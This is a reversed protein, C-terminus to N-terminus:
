QIKKNSIVNYLREMQERRLFKVVHEPVERQVRRLFAWTYGSLRFCSGFLYPRERVRFVCKAIEFLPHYGHSYEMVGQRFRASLIGGKATGTARHHFVEANPFSRVEWGHMRAMVEGLADVGGIELPTYGGIDEYCQRRFMQVAGAVSALNTFQKRLGKRYPELIIGGGIGLKPNKEFEELIRQCYNPGFSVDADLNGIFDYRVNTLHDHGANFARIKSGFNRNPDPYVRVFQIFDYKAEYRKVIEDTRDTSGDSVIVWKKPLITERIVSQITKEIYAEENRATTILVYSNNM